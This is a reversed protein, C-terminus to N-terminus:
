LVYAALIAAVGVWHLLVLSLAWGFGILVTFLFVGMKLVTARSLATTMNLTEVPEFHSKGKGGGNRSFQRYLGFSKESYM